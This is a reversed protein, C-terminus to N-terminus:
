KVLVKESKGNAVRIYLGKAPKEIEVGQLNYYRATGDAAEIEAVSTDIDGVFMITGATLDLTWTINKYDNAVKMNAGRDVVGYGYGAILPDANNSYTGLDILDWYEDAVKFEDEASIGAMSLTYVAAGAVDLKSFIYEESFGWDNFSGRLAIEPIYAVTLINTNVNLTLKVNESGDMTFNGANEVTELVAGNYISAIAGAGLNRDWSHNFRFKFDGNIGGMMVTWVGPQVETMDVDDAWGNFAGIVSWIGPAPPEEGDYSVTLTYAGNDEKVFYTVPVGVGHFAGEPQGVHMGYEGAYAATDNGDNPSIRFNANFNDWDDPSGLETAFAFYDTTAVTGSWKWGGDVEEMEIGIAPSWDGAPAGILYMADASAAMMACAAMALLFRKM